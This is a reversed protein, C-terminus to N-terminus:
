IVNYPIGICITNPVFYSLGLQDGSKFFGSQRNLFPRLNPFFMSKVDIVVSFLWMVKSSSLIRDEPKTLGIQWMELKNREITVRIEFNIIGGFNKIM